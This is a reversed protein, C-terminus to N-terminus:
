HIFTNIQSYISLVYLISNYLHWCHGMLDDKFYSQMRVNRLDLNAFCQKEMFM